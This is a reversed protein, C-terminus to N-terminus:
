PLFLVAVGVQSLRPVVVQLVGTRGGPTRCRREPVRLVGPAPHAGGCAAPLRLWTVDFVVCQRSAIRSFPLLQPPQLPESSETLLCPAWASCSLTVSGLLCLETRSATAARLALGHCWLSLWGSPSSLVM